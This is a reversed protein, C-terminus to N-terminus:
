IHILSLKGYDTLKGNFWYEDYSPNDSHRKQLGRAFVKKYYSWGNEVDYRQRWRPIQTKLMRMEEETLLHHLAHILEHRTVSDTNLLKDVDGNLSNTFLVIRARTGGGGRAQFYGIRTANALVEVLELASLQSNRGLLGPAEGEGLRKDDPISM